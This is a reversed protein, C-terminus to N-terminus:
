GQWAFQGRLKSVFEDPKAVVIDPHGPQYQNENFTALWACRERMAVSLSPIYYKTALKQCATLEAPTPDPKVNIALKVLDRYSEVAQPMKLQITREVEKVVQESCIAEILNIESLRILILSASFDAVSIIGAILVDSDLFIRPKVWKSRPM